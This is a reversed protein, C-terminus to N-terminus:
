FLSCSPNKRRRRTRDTKHGSPITADGPDAIPDSGAVDSPDELSTGISSGQSYKLVNADDVILMKDLEQQNSQITIIQEHLDPRKPGLPVGMSSSGVSSCSKRTSSEDSMNKCHRIKKPNDGVPVWCEWHIGWDRYPFTVCGDGNWKHGWSNKLIFGSDNYGIVVVSHGGDDNEHGEKRWFHPRTKYLPLVFYCPGITGVARKLGDSTMVRAFNAVRHKTAARYMAADPGDIRNYPYMTEPVSGIDRLIRFVDRGYMGSAPKNERHYYIFEASLYETSGCDLNEQIEKITAGAFAACTGRRGQNRSVNTHKRM